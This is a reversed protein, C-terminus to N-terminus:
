GYWAAGLEADLADPLDLAVPASVGECCASYEWFYAGINPLVLLQGDRLPPLEAGRKVVDFSDMIPGLVTADMAPTGGRGVWVTPDGGSEIFCSEFLGGYASADIYVLRRGAVVRDTIVRALMVMSPEALFRGPESLFEVDPGFCVSLSRRIRAFFDPHDLHFRRRSGPFGGGINVGPVVVGDSELKEALKALEEIAARFPRAESMGKGATGVFFSLAEVELGGEAAERAVELLAEPTNGFRVISRTSEGIDPPLMRLTLRLPVGLSRLLRLGRLDDVVFRTVGLDAVAAASAATLVPHVYTLRSPRVGLDLLARLHVLNTVNFEDVLPVLERLLRRHANAKTAYSIRGGLTERLRAVGARIAAPSLLLAPTAIREEVAWSIVQEATADAHM